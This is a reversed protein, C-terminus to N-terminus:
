EGSSGAEARMAYQVFRIESFSVDNGLSQRVQNLTESPYTEIYSRISALKQAPLLTEVALEGTGVYRVLHSEVTSVALSRESAIEAITKGSQFFALTIAPSLEKPEKPPKPAKVKPSALSAARGSPNEQVIRLIEAGIQRVKTKGFGKVALLEAENTPRVRALEVITKQPLVMFGSTNHEGAMDNRWKM